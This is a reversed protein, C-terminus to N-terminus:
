HGLHGMPGGTGEQKVTSADSPKGGQITVNSPFIPEAPTETPSVDKDAM